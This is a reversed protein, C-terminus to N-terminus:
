FPVLFYSLILVWWDDIQNKTTQIKYNLSIPKIKGNYGRMHIQVVLTVANRCITEASVIIKKIKLVKFIKYLKWM